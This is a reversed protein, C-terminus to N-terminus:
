FGEDLPITALSKIEQALLGLLGADDHQIQICNSVSHGHAGAKLQLEIELVTSYMSM